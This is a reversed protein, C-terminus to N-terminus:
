CFFNPERQKLFEYDFLNHCNGIRLQFQRRCFDSQRFIICQASGIFSHNLESDRHGDWLREASHGHQLRLRGYEFGHPLFDFLRTSTTTELRCLRAPLHRHERRNNGDGSYAATIIIPISSPSPVYSVACAGASLTCTAAPSFNAVGSTTWTITGSPSTVQSVRRARRPRARPPRRHRASCPRPRPTRAPPSCIPVRAEPTTCM